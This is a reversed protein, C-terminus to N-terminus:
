DEEDIPKGYLVVHLERIEDPTWGAYNKGGASRNNPDKVLDEFDDKIMKLQLTVDEIETPNGSNLRELFEQSRRKVNESTANQLREAIQQGLVNKENTPKPQEPSWM